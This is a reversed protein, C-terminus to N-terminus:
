GCMWVFAIHEQNNSNPLFCDQIDQENRDSKKTRGEAYYLELGELVHSASVHQWKRTAQGMELGALVHGAILFLVFSQVVYKGRSSEQQGCGSTTRTLM